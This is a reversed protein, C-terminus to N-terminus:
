TVLPLYTVHINRLAAWSVKCVPCRWQLFAASQLWWKSCQGDCIAHRPFSQSTSHDAHWWASCRMCALHHANAPKQWLTKVVVSLRSVNPCNKKVSFFSQVYLSAHHWTLIAFFLHPLDIRSVGFGTLEIANTHHIGVGDDVHSAHAKLTAPLKWRVPLTLVAFLILTFEIPDNKVQAFFTRTSTQDFGQYAPWRLITPLPINMWGM